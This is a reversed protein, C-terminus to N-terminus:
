KRNSLFVGAFIVLMGIIHTKQTNEGDMIGWFISVVPIFYTVSGSFVPKTLKILRNFLILAMGTGFIGLILVSILSNRILQLHYVKEGFETYFTLFVFTIPGLALLSVTSITLAPVKVLMFKIINLNIGYCATALIVFFIYYNLKGFDGGSGAFLLIVSGSFGLFLGAMERGRLKYNFFVFSVSVIWIPTLANLIGTIASELQTEAYAFLFAPLMTGFLGTLVIISLERFNLSRLRSLAIPAVVLSASLVRVAAVEAPTLHILGKKILIFSSGWILSLLILLGWAELYKKDLTKM